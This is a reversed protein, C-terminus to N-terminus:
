RKGGEHNEGEGPPVANIEAIKRIEDKSFQLINLWTNVREGAFGIKGHIGQFETVSSLARQLAERTTAGKGVCDLMVRAADYGFFANKTPKKKFRASYAAAFRDSAGGTVDMYSDTDFIVGETYRRNANLESVSNWEGSGIFQSRFNFYTVQSAVVGIEEPKAIPLYMADIGEVPYELSDVLSEDFTVPIALSDLIERGRDGLLSRASVMAGVRMLSDLRKLSVGRRALKLLSAQQMRGGFAVKPEASAMMGVRRIAALQPKLDAAGHEYWASAVVNAGLRIVERTFGEALFKGYADSPALVAFTRYGCREVAYRAMARGRVEYDPNAQFVYKGTAALGNANATPSIMVIGKANAVAAASTVEPSFVPGLIGIVSKDDALEEAGRRSMAPDRETDKSELSIAIRTGAARAYEEVAYLIGDFVENGIEKIASPDSKSMLPLLAGLKVASSAAVRGRLEAIRGAFPEAPYGSSLSDLAVATAVTNERASEMDAVKMWFYARERPDQSRDLLSRVAGVDLRGDITSDMQRRLQDALRTSGGALLRRYASRFNELAEGTRDIRRYVVGLVFEADPVYASEPYKAIFAKMTKVADLNQGSALLAKGKMILAATIRHGDPFDKAVKDFREAAEAYQGADYVAVAERFRAEGAESFVVHGQALGAAVCWPVLAAILMLSRM